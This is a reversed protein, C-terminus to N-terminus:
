QNVNKNQWLFVFSCTCFLIKRSKFYIVNSLFEKFVNFYEVMEGREKGWGKGHVQKARLNMSEIEKTIIVGGNRFIFVFQEIVSNWFWLYMLSFLELCAWASHVWPGKTNEESSKATPLRSAASHLFTKTSQRQYIVM